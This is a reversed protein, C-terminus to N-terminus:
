PWFKPRAQSRSLSKIEISKSVTLGCNQDRSWFIPRLRIVNGEAAIKFQQGQGRGRPFIKTKGPRLALRKVHGSRTKLVFTQGKKAEIGTKFM